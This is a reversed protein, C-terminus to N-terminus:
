SASGPASADEGDQSRPRRLKRGTEPDFLHLKTANLWLEADQGETVNSAADLRAVVQGERLEDSDLGETEVTFYAYIESGM